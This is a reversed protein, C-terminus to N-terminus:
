PQHALVPKFLPVNFLTQYPICKSLLLFFTKELIAESEEGFSDFNGGGKSIILDSQEALERVEQSCRSLDTGPFPGDIGNEVVPVFGTLGAQSAERATADNMVPMSRVVFVVESSFRDKLVEIFFRDFVIEGANDGLYLVREATALRREFAALAAEPVPLRLQGRLTNEVDTRHDGMMLDITNGIIALKVGLRLPDPDKRFLDRLFSELGLIAQNQRQKLERFPDPRGTAEMLIEMVQEIVQPSTVQWAQGRLSPIATISPFIRRITSDELEVQKMSSVAMKLICPICDPQILM